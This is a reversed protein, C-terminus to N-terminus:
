PLRGQTFAFGNWDHGLQAADYFLSILTDPYGRKLLDRLIADESFREMSGTYAQPAIRVKKDVVTQVLEPSHWGGQMGELTWSTDQYRMLQRWRTLLRIIRSSSHTEDNLQVRPFTTSRAGTGQIAKVKAATVEAFHEPTGTFEGWNWAAYVGVQLGRARVGELYSRTVRPDELSFYARTIGHAQLRAYAPDNGADIWIAKM